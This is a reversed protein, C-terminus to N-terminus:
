IKVGKALIVFGGCCPVGRVGNVAFIDYGGAGAKRAAKYFATHSYGELPYFGCCHGDTGLVAYLEGCKDVRKIPTFTLGCYKFGKSM